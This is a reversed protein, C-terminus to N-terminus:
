PQPAKRATAMGDPDPPAGAENDTGLSSAGVDFPETKADAKADAIQQKIKLGGAGIPALGNEEDDAM